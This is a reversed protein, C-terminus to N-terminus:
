GAVDAGNEVVIEPRTKALDRAAFSRRSTIPLRAALDAEPRTPAAPSIAMM